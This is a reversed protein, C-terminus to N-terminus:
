AAVRREMIRIFRNGYFPIWFHNKYIIKIFGPCLSFGDQRGGGEYGERHGPIAM